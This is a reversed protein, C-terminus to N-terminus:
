CIASSIACCVQNRGQHKARYLAEDAQQLLPASDDAAPILSAVGASISLRGTAAQPHAIALALVALRVQEAVQKAGATDTDTLLLIFEEGGYRACVDGSRRCVEALQAAVQQLARDGAPHGFGDNFAKFDDVDLMVVALPQQHRRCQQWQSQLQQEFHRRNAIGTLGDTISLWQLQQVLQQQRQSESILLRHQLFEHRAVAEMNLALYAGLVILLMWFLVFYPQLTLLAAEVADSSAYSWQWCALLYGLLVTISCAMFARVSNRLLVMAFVQVPILGVHYALRVSGELQTIFLALSLGILTMGMATLPLLRPVDAHRRLHMVLLLLALGLMLRTTVLCGSIDGGFALDAWAFSMYLVLGVLMMAFDLQLFRRDRHKLYDAELSTPFPLFHRQRQRLQQLQNIQQEVSRLTDQGPDPVAQSM